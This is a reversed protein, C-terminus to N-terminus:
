GEPDLGALMDVADQTLHANAFDSPTAGGAGASLCHEILARLADVWADALAQVTDKRLRNESYAWRAHLRGGTVTATVELLHPRRARAAHSAGSPERAIRFPAATPVAQDLQGLYNFSLEARQLSQLPDGSSPPPALWRLLGYGLGRGPIARLQEKVSKLADGPGADARIQLVVPFLTTFWGVTRTLDVDDFLEERGHGELDLLVAAGDPASPAAWRGIAQALATLLADNIQTRYADPVRTLLAETDADSLSCLIARASAEVDEVLTHDVPLRAVGTRLQALWYGREEDVAPSRAHEALRESWRQFSTTKPPFALPLGGRRADYASWLDHLLIRWSVGDVALHHVVVLLRSPTEPGLDLLLVRLLPGAELDLSAQAEAALREITSRRESEPVPGLDIRQVPAPDGAPAIRLVPAEATGGVRLRLADHHELLQAVVDELAAADMRDRVEFFFSQNYHHADALRQDLWWRQIPTAIVPGTVSGQEADIAAGATAVAGLAAITPYQFIQRPTVRIGAAQARAIIQIALISDGGLAFFNDHVGITDRRLVGAWIGALTAEVHSAPPAFAAGLSLAGGEEPAPLARRDVKGSGTLPLAPLSVFGAPIMYDPLRDALFARLDDVTPLPADDRAVLYALLRPAGGNVAADAHPIVVAERVAAHALLTAEIEGLEIRFGRLKIQFDARGLYEIEGSPLWRAVDGTRYLRAGSTASFPDRVFREATLEPRNWYGRAVQVGGIYLEGRVGVPAPEMRADLVYMRTNDIPRGITVVAAGPTVAGATVEIAAETPGYLNHLEVGPLTAFFRAALAPSLAEGSCFVRRVSACRERAAPGLASLEDHIIARMSPVFHVVTLARSAITDVLYGPERHGGPRAVVLEAGSLLPWFLEWVSVDFSFPTKQLVRDGAGLRYVHQGWALRNMVGRHANMVGKPRGTSGSTYIVYALSEPTLGDRPLPDAPEAAALHWDVDVRVVPAAQPPLLSALHAQTLIVRPRADDIMFALRDRPYEPDLPVYAGGAKLVALLAVLLELSREMCVGVLAEGRVGHRRLLRALRNARADLEGYRLEAGAFSVAVAAPTRAAQAAVQEHLLTDPPHDAATDNWEVLVRRREAEALLPLERLPRSPDRVIGELLVSFHEVLRESTAADFLDTAYEFSGALGGGPTRGLGLSLDFKAVAADGVGARSGLKATAGPDAPAAPAPPDQLTFLVQFLPSRSLDRVPDLEQVLREFPMDQHAYAGLCVERVRALHARFSLEPPLEARLVLTNLFFGILGETEARSRNAIPTGVSLDEQGTHRFLLVQFAALLTM